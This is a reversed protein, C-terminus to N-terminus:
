TVLAYALCANRTFCKMCFDSFDNQFTTLLWYYTSYSFLNLRNLTNFLDNVM